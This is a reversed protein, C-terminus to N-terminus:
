PADQVFLENNAIQETRKTFGNMTYATNDTTDYLQHNNGTLPRGLKGPPRYNRLENLISANEALCGMRRM